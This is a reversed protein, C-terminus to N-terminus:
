TPAPCTSAVSPKTTVLNGIASMTLDRARESDQLADSKSCLRIVIPNQVNGGLMQRPQGNAAFSIYNAGAMNGVVKIDAPLNQGVFTIQDAADVTADVTTRTIDQVILWGIEWGDGATTSCQTNAANSRCVTVRNGSRMSEMRARTLTSSLENVASSLRVSAIVSQFSPVALTMLVALISATTMLEILTMGGQRKTSSHLRIYM